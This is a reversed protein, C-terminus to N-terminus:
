NSLLNRNSLRGCEDSSGTTEEPYEEIKVVSKLRKSGSCLYKPLYLHKNPENAATPNNRNTFFL